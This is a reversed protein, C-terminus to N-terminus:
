YSLNDPTVGVYDPQPDVAFRVAAIDGQGLLLAKCIRHMGDMVRGQSCLIVPYEFDCESILKAHEVIDRCTPPEGDLSWYPEDLERIETLPVRERPLQQSLEVLRKVDWALLGASSKRFHYQQRM